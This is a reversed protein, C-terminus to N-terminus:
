NVSFVRVWDQSAPTGYKEVFFGTGVPISPGDTSGPGLWGVGGLYVWSEGYGENDDGPPNVYFSLTDGDAAPFELGVKTTGDVYGL